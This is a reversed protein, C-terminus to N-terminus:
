TQYQIKKDVLQWALYTRYFDLPKRGRALMYSDALKAKHLAEPDTQPIPRKGQGVSVGMNIDRAPKM